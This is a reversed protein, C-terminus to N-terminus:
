FGLGETKDCAQKLTQMALLLRGGMEESPTWITLASQDFTIQVGSKYTVSASGNWLAPNGLSTVKSWDIDYPATKLKHLAVLDQRAAFLEAHKAPDSYNNGEPYISKGSSDNVQFHSVPGELRSACRDESTVSAIRYTLNAHSWGATMTMTLPYQAAAVALFRQANEPTRAASPESGDQAASPAALVLAAAM